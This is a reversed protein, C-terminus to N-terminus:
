QVLEIHGLRKIGAGKTVFYMWEEGEAMVAMCVHEAAVCEM